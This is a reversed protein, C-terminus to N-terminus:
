KEKKLQYEKEYPGYTKGDKGIAVLRITYQGENEFAFMVNSGEKESIVQNDFLVQWKYSEIKDQGKSTNTCQITDYNSAEFHFSPSIPELFRMTFLFSFFVIGVAMIGLGIFTMVRNWKRKRIKEQDMQYYLVDLEEEGDIHKAAASNKQEPLDKIIPLVTTKREDAAGAGASKVVSQGQETKEPITVTIEKKETKDEVEAIAEEAFKDLLETSTALLRKEEQQARLKERKKAKKSKKNNKGSKPDKALWEDLLVEELNEPKIAIEPELQAGQEVPAAALTEVTMEELHSTQNFERVEQAIEKLSNTIQTQVQKINVTDKANAKASMLEATDFTPVPRTSEEKANMSSLTATGQTRVTEATETTEATRVSADGSDRIPKAPQAPIGAQPKPVPAPTPTAETFDSLHDEGVYETDTVLDAQKAIQKEFLDIKHDRIIEERNKEAQLKKNRLAQKHREVTAENIVEGNERYIYIRKEINLPKKYIFVDRYASYADAITYYSHNKGKMQELLMKEPFKADYLLKSLFNGIAAIVDKATVRDMCSFNVIERLFIGDENFIIQDEEILHLKVPDPFADYRLMKKLIELAMQTRVEYSSNTTSVFHEFTRGDIYKLVVSTKANDEHADLFNYLNELNQKTSLSLFSPRHMTIVVVRSGDINSVATGIEANDSQFELVYSRYTM